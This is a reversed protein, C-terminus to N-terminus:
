KAYTKAFDTIAPIAVDTGQSAMYGIYIGYLWVLIGVLGIIPIFALVIGVIGLLIAQISHLKKRNDNGSILFFIIGTLWELLYIVIYTFDASKKSATTAM